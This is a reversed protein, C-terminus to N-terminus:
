GTQSLGSEFNIKEVKFNMETGSLNWEMAVNSLFINKWLIQSGTQLM